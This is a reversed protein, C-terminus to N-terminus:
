SQNKPFTGGFLKLTAWVKSERNHFYEALKVDIAHRVERDNFLKGVGIRFRYPSWVDLSEVGSVGEILKRIGHNIRFNTYGTWFNFVKVPNTSENLPVIGMPTNILSTGKGLPLDVEEDIEEPDFGLDYGDPNDHPPSFAGPWEHEKADTGFPCRFKEWAILKKEYTSHEISHEVPDPLAQKKERKRLAEMPSVRKKKQKSM